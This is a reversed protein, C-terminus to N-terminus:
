NMLLMCVTKNELGLDQTASRWKVERCNNTLIVTSLYHFCPNEQTFIGASQTSGDSNQEQFVDPTM